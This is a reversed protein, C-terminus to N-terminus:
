RVCAFRSETRTSHNGPSQRDRHQELRSTWAERPVPYRDGHCGRDQRCRGKCRSRGQAVLRNGCFQRPSAVDRLDERIAARTAMTGTSLSRHREHGIRFHTRPRLCDLVLNEGFAHRRPTGHLAEPGEEIIRAQRKRFDGHYRTPHLATCGFSIGLIQLRRVIVIRTGDFGARGRPSPSNPSVEPEVARHHSHSRASAVSWTGAPKLQRRM